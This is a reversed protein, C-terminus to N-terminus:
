VQFIFIYINRKYLSNYILWSKLLFLYFSLSLSQAIHHKSKIIDINNKNWIDLWIKTTQLTMVSFMSLM